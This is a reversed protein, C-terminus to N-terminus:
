CKTIDLNKAYFPSMQDVAIPINLAAYTKFWGFGQAAVHADRM